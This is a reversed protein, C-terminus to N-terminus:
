GLLIIDYFTQFNVFAADVIIIALDTVISSSSNCSTVLSNCYRLSLGPNYSLFYVSAAENVSM